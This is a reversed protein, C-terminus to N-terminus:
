GCQAIVRLLYNNFNRFGYTRRQILKMTRHFGETIGNNKTFRWRCAIEEKWSFLTQALTGLSALSSVALDRITKLLETALHPCRSKTHHKQRVLDCLSNMKQYLPVFAPHRM